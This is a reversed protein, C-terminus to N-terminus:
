LDEIDSEEIKKTKLEGDIMDLCKDIEDSLTLRGKLPQSPMEMIKEDVELQQQKRQLESEVLSLALRKEELEATLTDLESTKSTIFRNTTELTKQKGELQSEIDRIEKNRKEVEDKIKEMGKNTATRERNVLELQTHIERYKNDLKELDQQKQELESQMEAMKTADNIVMISGQHEENSDTLPIHSIDALLNDDNQNKLHVSNVTISKKSTQCQNQADVLREDKMFDLEFINTGHIKERDIEMMQEAKKNWDTIVNEKNTLLIPLPISNMVSKFNSSLQDTEAKLQNIANMKNKILSTHKEILQNKLEAIINNRTELGQQRQQLETQIEKMESQQEDLEMTRLELNDHLEELEERLGKLEEDQRYLEVTRTEVELRRRELAEHLQELDNNKISVEKKKQELETLQNKMEAIIRNRGQLDNVIADIEEQKRELEKTFHRITQPEELESQSKDFEQRIEGIDRNRVWPESQMQMLESELRGIEYNKKEVKSQIARWKETLEDIEQMYFNLDSSKEEKHRIGIRRKKKVTKEMNDTASSGKSKKKDRKLIPMKQKEM